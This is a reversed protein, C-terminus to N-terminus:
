PDSHRANGDVGRRIAESLETLAVLLRRRDGSAAAVQKRLGDYAEVSRTNGPDRVVLAAEIRAIDLRIQSVEDRVDRVVDRRVRNKEFM